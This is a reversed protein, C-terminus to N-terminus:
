KPKVGPVPQPTKPTTTQPTRVLLPRYSAGHDVHTFDESGYPWNAVSKGSEDGSWGASRGFSLDAPNGEDFWGVGHSHQAIYECSLAITQPYVSGHSRSEADEFFGQEIDPKYTFGSITGLLGASQASSNLSAGVGADAILNLFKLKFLPAASLVTAAGEVHKFASKNKYVPYLMQYLRTAKWLNYKAEEISSAVVDWGLSIIRQTRQFTQIPDMRGYVDESNWSSNFRDEFDTLFAKFAVTKGVPVNYFEIRKRHPSLFVHDSTGDFPVRFRKKTKAPDAGAM